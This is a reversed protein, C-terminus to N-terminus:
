RRDWCVLREIKTEGVTHNSCIANVSLLSCFAEWEADSVHLCSFRM